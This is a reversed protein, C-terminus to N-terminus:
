GLRGGDLLDLADVPLAPLEAELRERYVAVVALDALRERRALRGLGVPLLRVLRELGAGHPPAQGLLAGALGHREGDAARLAVEGGAGVGVVPEALDEDLQALLAGGEGAHH